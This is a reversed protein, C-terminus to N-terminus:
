RSESFQLRDILVDNAPVKVRATTFTRELTHNFEKEGGERPPVHIETIISGDQALFSVILGKDANTYWFSFSKPAQSPHIDVTGSRVVLVQGNVHTGSSSRISMPAETGPLLSFHVGNSTFTQGPAFDQSTQDEFDVTTLNNM